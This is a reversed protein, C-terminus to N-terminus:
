GAPTVQACAAMHHSHVTTTQLNDLGATRVETATKVKHLNPTCAVETPIHTDMVDAAGADQSEAAHKRRMHMKVARVSSFYVGCVPCACEQTPSTVPTINSNVLATVELAQQLWTEDETGHCWDERATRLQRHLNNAIMTAVNSLGVEMLLSADTQHTIHNSKGTIARIQKMMMMQVQKILNGTLPLCDLAYLLCPKLVLSWMEIRQAQNLGRKSCLFRSMQWHRLRTKQMRLMTTQAECGYYSICAGLYDARQVLPIYRRRLGVPIILKRAQKKGSTRRQSAHDRMTGSVALMAKAKDNNLTVGMDELIRMVVTLEQIARALQGMSDFTWSGHTDDAYVNLHEACWGTGLVADVRQCFLASFALFLIPSARCGQKM